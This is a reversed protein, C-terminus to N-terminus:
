YGQSWFTSVRYLHCRGSGQTRGAKKIPHDHLIEVSNDRLAYLMAGLAHPKTGIVALQIFRTPWDKRIVELQRFLSFPCSADVYDLRQWSRTSKLIDANGEFTHFPYDIEFGPVGVIPFIDHEDPQVNEVLYKFRVGEFGLLAVLLGSSQSRSPIRAFTPIPRLGRVKESLQYFEGPRPNTSPTYRGPETYICHVEKNNELIIRLLPMWVHHSLGTIDLYIPRNDLSSIWSRLSLNERLSFEVGPIRDITIQGFSELESIQYAQGDRFHQV